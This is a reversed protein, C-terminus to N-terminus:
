LALTYQLYLKNTSDDQHQKPFIHYDHCVVVRLVGKSALLSLDFYLRIGLLLVAFGAECM